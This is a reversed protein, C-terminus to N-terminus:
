LTRSQGKQIKTMQLFIKLEEKREKSLNHWRIGQTAGELACLMNYCAREDTTQLRIFSQEAGLEILQQPTEIGVEKLKEEVVKGINSLGHLQVM